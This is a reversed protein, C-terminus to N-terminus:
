LYFRTRSGDPHLEYGELFRYREISQAPCHQCQSRVEIMAGAHVQQVEVWHHICLTPKTENEAQRNDHSTM